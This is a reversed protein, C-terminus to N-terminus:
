SRRVCPDFNRHVVALRTHGVHAAKNVGGDRSLGLPERCNLGRQAVVNLLRQAVFLAVHEPMCGDHDLMGINAAGGDIASEHSSSRLLRM